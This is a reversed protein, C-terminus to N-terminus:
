APLGLVVAATMYWAPALPSGTVEILWTVIFQATGGFGFDGACLHHGARRRAALRAHKGCPPLHRRALASSFAM